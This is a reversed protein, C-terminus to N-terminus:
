IIFKQNNLLAKVLKVYDKGDKKLIEFVFTPASTELSTYFVMKKIYDSYVLVGYKINSQLNLNSSTAQLVTLHRFMEDDTSKVLSSSEEVYLSNILDFIEKLKEINLQINILDSDNFFKLKRYDVYKLSFSIKLTENLHVLLNIRLPNNYTVVEVDFGNMEFKPTAMVNDVGFIDSFVSTFEFKKKNSMEFKIQAQLQIIINSLKTTFEKIEDNNQIDIKHNEKFNDKFKKYIYSTFPLLYSKKDVVCQGLKMYMKNKFIITIPIHIYSGLGVHLYLKNDEFYADHKSLETLINVKMIKHLINSALSVERLKNIDSLDIHHEKM